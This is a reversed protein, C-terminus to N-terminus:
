APRASCPRRAGRSGREPRRWSRHGPDPPRHARVAPRRDGGPISASTAMGHSSSTLWTTMHTPMANMSTRIIQGGAGPHARRPWHPASRRDLGAGVRPGARLTAAEAPTLTEAFTVLATEPDSGAAMAQRMLVAAHAGPSGVPTFRIKRGDMRRRVLEKRVLRDLVTAM